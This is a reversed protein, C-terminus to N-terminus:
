GQEAWWEDYLKQMNEELFAATEATTWDGRLVREMAEIELKDVETESIGPTIGSTPPKTEPVSELVTLWSDWHPINEAWFPDRAAEYLAAPRKMGTTFDINGQEASLWKLL